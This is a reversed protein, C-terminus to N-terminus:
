FGKLDELVPFKGVCKQETELEIVRKKVSICRCMDGYTVHIVPNLSKILTQLYPRLTSHKPRSITLMYSEFHMKYLKKFSIDKEVQM